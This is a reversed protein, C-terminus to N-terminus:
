TADNPRTYYIKMWMINFILSTMNQITEFSIILLNKMLENLRKPLCLPCILNNIKKM